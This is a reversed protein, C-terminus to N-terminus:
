KFNILFLSFTILNKKFFLFKFPTKYTPIKKKRIVIENSRKRQGEFIIKLAQPLVGM